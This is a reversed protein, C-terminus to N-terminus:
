SEQLLELVDDLSDVGIISRAAIRRPVEDGSLAEERQSAPIVLCRAGAHLTAKLKLGLQGVQRVAIRGASDYSLAGTFVLHSPVRRELLVSAFAVAVPLELSPGGSPEDEKTLHLGYSFADFDQAREPYLAALAERVSAFTRRLQAAVGAALNGHVEAELLRGRDSGEAPLRRAIVDHVLGKQKGPLSYIAAARVVGPPPWPRDAAAQARRYLQAAAEKAGAHEELIALSRLIRESAPKTSAISRLAQLALELAREPVGGGRDAALSAALLRALPEDPTGRELVAEIAAMRAEEGEGTELLAAARWAHAEQPFERMAAEPAGRILLLIGRELGREVEDLDPLPLPGLREPSVFSRTAAELRRKPSLWQMRECFAEEYTREAEQAGAEDGLRRRLEILRPFASLKGGGALFALVREAKRRCAAEGRQEYIRALLTLRDVDHAFGPETGLHELAASAQNLRGALEDLMASLLILLKRQETDGAATALALGETCALAARDNRGQAMLRAARRVLPLDTARAGGQKEQESLMVLRLLSPNAQISIERLRRWGDIAESIAGSRHYLHAALGLRDPEDPNEALLKAAQSRAQRLYGAEALLRTGDLPRLEEM